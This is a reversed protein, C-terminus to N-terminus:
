DEVEGDIIRFISDFCVDNCLLCNEKEKVDNKCDLYYDQLQEMMSDYNILRKGERERAVENAVIAVSVIMGVALGILAGILLMM